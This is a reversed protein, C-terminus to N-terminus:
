GLLKFFAALLLGAGLGAVIGATPWFAIGAAVAIVLGFVGGAISPTKWDGGLFGKLFGGDKKDDGGGLGEQLPLVNRDANNNSSGAGTFQSKKGMNNGRPDGFNLPAVVTGEEGPRGSQDFRKDPPLAYAAVALM